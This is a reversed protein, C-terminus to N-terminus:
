ETLFVKVVFTVWFFSLIQVSVSVTVLFFSFIQVSAFLTLTEPIFLVVYYLYEFTPIVGRITVLEWIKIFHQREDTQTMLM